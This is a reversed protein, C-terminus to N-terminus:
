RARVFSRDSILMRNGNVDLWAAQPFAPGFVEGVYRNTEEKDRASRYLRNSILLGGPRLLRQVHELCEASSFWAPIQDDEFIDLLILDFQGTSQELYSAANAVICQVRANLDKLILEDAWAAIVEDHEVATYHGRLQHDRELMQIVSGLGLGLVLVDGGQLRQLDSHRFVEAFNLYLDEFSYIARNASLQLRGRVLELYLTPHLPSSVHRVPIPYLYSLWRKWRPFKM